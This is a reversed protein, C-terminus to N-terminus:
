RKRDRNEPTFHLILLSMVLFALGILASAFMGDM